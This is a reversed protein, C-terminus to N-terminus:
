DMREIMLMNDQIVVRGNIKYGDKVATVLLDKGKNLRYIKDYIESELFGEIGFGIWKYSNLVMKGDELIEISIIEDCDDNDLDYFIYDTFPRSLRSGRWKPVLRNDKYSYIFPRKDMVQHFITEKYVGVSVEYIGDGDVDGVDKWPKLESFNERYIETLDYMGNYIIVEKGYRGFMNKNLVILENNGDGDIDGYAKDLVREKLIYEDGHLFLLSILFILGIGILIFKIYKM